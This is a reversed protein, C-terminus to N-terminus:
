RSTCDLRPLILLSSVTGTSRPLPLLDVPSLVDAASGDGLEVLAQSRAEHQASDLVATGFGMMIHGGVLM